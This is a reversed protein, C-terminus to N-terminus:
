RSLDCISHTTFPKLLKGYHHLFIAKSLEEQPYECRGPDASIAFIHDQGGKRDWWPGLAQRTHLPTNKITSASEM